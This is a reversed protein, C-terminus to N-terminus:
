LHQGFFYFSIGGRERERYIYIYSDVSLHFNHQKVLSEGVKTNFDHVNCRKKRHATRMRRRTRMWAIITTDKNGNQILFYSISKLIKKKISRGGNQLM